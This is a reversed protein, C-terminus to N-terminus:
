KHPIERDARKIIDDFNRYLWEGKGGKGKKHAARFIVVSVSCHLGAFLPAGAPDASGETPSSDVAVEQRWTKDFLGLTSECYCPLPSQNFPIREQLLSNSIICLNASFRMLRPYEPVFNGPHNGPPIRLSQTQLSVSAWSLITRGASQKM